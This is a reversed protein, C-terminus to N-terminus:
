LCLGHREMERLLSSLWIIAEESGGIGKTGAMQPSWIEDTPFCYFVLDKGSSDTRAFNANRINCLAPHTQLDFPLADLAVKMESKDAIMAIQAAQNVVADFAGTKKWFEYKPHLLMAKEYFELTAQYLMLAQLNNTRNSSAETFDPKLSIAKDYSEGAAQFQQLEHLASGRNQYAEAYEPKLRIAKDYSQVAAQFQQLVFLANGRDFYAEAFMPDIQIARDLLELANTSRGSQSAIVGLLRLANSHSPYVQLIQRYLAEAESLQGANHQAMAQQLLLDVSSPNSSAPHKLPTQKDQRRFANKRGTKM